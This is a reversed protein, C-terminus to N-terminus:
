KLSKMYNDTVHTLVRRIETMNQDRFRWLEVGALKRDSHSANKTLDVMITMETEKLLVFNLIRSFQITKIVTLDLDLLSIAGWNVALIVRRGEPTVMQVMWMRSTSFEWKLTHSLYMDICEEKTYGRLHSWIKSFEKMISSNFITENPDANNDESHRTNSGSSKGSSHSANAKLGSEETKKNSKGHKKSKKPSAEGTLTETKEQGFLKPRLDYLTSDFEKIEQVWRPVMDGFAKTFDTEKDKMGNLSTDLLPHHDQYIAQANIAALAIAASATCPFWGRKVRQHVNNLLLLKEKSSVTRLFEKLLPRHKLPNMEQNSHYQSPRRLDVSELVFDFIELLEWENNATFKVEGSLLVDETMTQNNASFRSAVTRPPMMWWIKLEVEFKDLWARGGNKKSFAEDQSAIIDGIFDNPELMSYNAFPSRFQSNKESVFLSFQDRFFWGSGEIGIKDLSAETIDKVTTTVDCALEISSKMPNKVTIIVQQPELNSILALIEARSPVTRRGTIRLKRDLAMKWFNLIDSCKKVFASIKDVPHNSHWTLAIKLYHFIDGVPPFIGMCLVLLQWTQVAFSSSSYPHYITQKILQFLLEKQLDKHPICTQIIAKALTVHYDIAQQSIMTSSFLIIAKNVQIAERRLHETSLTTLPTEISISSYRQSARAFFEDVYTVSEVSTLNIDRRFVVIEEILQKVLKQHYTTNQSALSCINMLASVWTEFDVTSACKIWITQKPTHLAFRKSEKKKKELAMRFLGSLSKGNDENSDSLDSDTDEEPNILELVCSDKDLPVISCPKESRQDRYCYLTHHNLTCWRTKILGRSHKELWGSALFKGSREVTSLNAYNRQKEKLISHFTMFWGDADEQNEACLYLFRDPIEIRIIWKKRSFGDFIGGSTDCQAVGFLKRLPFCGLPEADQRESDSKSKFYFLTANQLVFYRRNWTKFSESQKWLYGSREFLLVKSNPPSNRPDSVLSSSNALSPPTMNLSIAMNKDNKAKDKTSKRFKAPSPTRTSDLTADSSDISIAPSLSPNQAQMSKLSDPTGKGSSKETTLKKAPHFLIETAEKLSAEVNRQPQSPSASVSSNLSSDFPTNSRSLSQLLAEKELLSYRADEILKSSRKAESEFEEIKASLM